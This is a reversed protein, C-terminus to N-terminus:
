FIGFQQNKGRLSVVLMGLGKVISNVGHNIVTRNDLQIVFDYLNFMSGIKCLSM